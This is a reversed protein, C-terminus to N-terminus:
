LLIDFGGEKLAKAFSQDFFKWGAPSYDTNNENCSAVLSSATFALAFLAQSVLPSRPNSNGLDAPIRSLALTQQSAPTNAVFSLFCHSSAKERGAQLRSEGAQKYRTFALAIAIEQPPPWPSSTSRLAPSRGAPSYIRASLLSPLRKFQHIQNRYMYTINPHRFSNLISTNEWGAASM